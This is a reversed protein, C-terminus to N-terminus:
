ISTPCSWSISEWDEDFSFLKLHNPNDMLEKAVLYGAITWTQYKRAEKGILRGNRGDYYEPWQDQCIREEAIKIARKALDIRGTKQAAAVLPWLLVPWSGGNHYSWPVNKPDCGTLIRWELGEVAPFCIKMPMTGILDDWRQEILDMIWQSEQASSLSCIIALLNGQAFFRFDMRAPGLNGALYGGTDPMWETVWYPISDPYINFKNVAKEGFEEGRYRYIDNLRKLDLWYYERIHFNLTNLRQTIFQKYVQGQRSPALLERAGRLTAYFLAQIELPHEYVGMRRDIMFSGDPVLMTPFMDFRDALCLKLIEIIGKQFDERHALEIDGTAKVYARLLIIWWLSSDVPTVRAIAHEGFDATLYQKDYSLAIKFSAPMLGQGANFCDMQKIENQLSLTEILFHRVIEAKGVMLYILASSVFDRVFCHSYNLEEVDPDSAAVTGVPNGYYYIVSDELAKWAKTIIDSQALM